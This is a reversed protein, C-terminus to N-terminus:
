PFGSISRKGSFTGLLSNTTKQEAVYNVEVAVPQKPHFLAMSDPKLFTFNGKSFLSGYFNDSVSEVIFDDLELPDIGLSGAISLYAYYAGLTTWHHDTKYYLEEQKHKQLNSSLDIFYSDQSLGEAVQKLYDLESSPSAFLPLKREYISTATPALAVYTQHEKAFANIKEIIKAQLVLDPTKFDQLLYGDQGIFVGKQDTRGM